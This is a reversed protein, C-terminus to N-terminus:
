FGRRSHRIACQSANNGSGFTLDNYNKNFAQQKLFRTYDSSDYVWKGNCTASPINRIL